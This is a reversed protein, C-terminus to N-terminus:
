ARPRRRSASSPRARAPDSRTVRPESWISKLIWLFCPIGILSYVMATKLSYIDQVPRALWRPHAGYLGYINLFQLVLLVQAAVTFSWPMRRAMFLVLLVSGLFLHNEHGSTMLFPTALSAFCFIRAFKDGVAQAGREVRFVLVSVLILVVGGALYRMPVQPLFRLRDSVEYIPQGAERTVYAVPYWINTMQATLAPMVNAINLYSKPLVSAAAPGREAFLAMTFYAEYGLFLLIPFVMLGLARAHRTRAYHFVGFLFAAFVLIQVQPKMVFALALPIGALIYRGSTERTLLLITLVVFFTFQFDIYGLAFVALFWPHLWYVLAYLPNSGQRKLLLVLLCFSGIDFPLNSSKFVTVFTAGSKAVIWASWEFMQYQLPFYTGEYSAAVGSALAAKGWNNYFNMDDPGMYFLMPRKLILGVIVGCLLLGTVPRRATLRL